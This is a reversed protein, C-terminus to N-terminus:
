RSGTFADIVAVDYPGLVIQGSCATDSILERGNPLRRVTKTEPYHNLVFWLSRDVDRRLMIEVNEDCEALPRLTTQGIITGLIAASNEITLYTGLTFVQGGGHRNRAMAPQGHAAHPGLEAPMDWTALTEATDPDLIEYGHGSMARWEQSVLVCSGPDLKGFEIVRVGCLTTLEGPPTDAIVQHRRDHIASRATVVLTGGREVFETLKAALAADMLPMSPLVILDLEEFRDEAHVFGCALSRRWLERYAIDRQEVPGPLNLSMAAHAEQQDFELLVAARVELTTGLIRAGVRDMERGERCFEEFRRRPINDHGLIGNWYEEAGFRCTRWRFHLIGDAGHAVAQWAWLRMQGPQPTAHLGNKNGGAGGQIEPVIFGGTAARCREAVVGSWVATEPKPNGGGPYSDVSLFDLDASFKWYDIHRFIGNHTIWWNANAQRLIAIQQRQFERLEDSLFRYYDLEAGPNPCAPRRQVYPLPVQEFADYTLAWFSTGWSENLRDVTGYRARLWRQFARRCADCYCESFHCFFENDTQWGIVAPMEAYHVSMAGTIARSAARFGEHTTCCHQRSGHEMRRGDADVRMWEPHTDTLWRPPDATPTCLITAIGKADLEAIVEDFLSFDFRGPSPEMRDWAFEAMRVVNVRASAMREADTRRHADLAHEPYYPVGFLFRSLGAPKQHRPVSLAHDMM